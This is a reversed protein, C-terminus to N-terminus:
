AGLPGKPMDSLPLDRHTSKNFDLVTGTIYTHSYPLSAHCPASVSQMGHGQHEQLPKSFSNPGFSEVM